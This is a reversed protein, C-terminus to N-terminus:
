HVGLAFRSRPTHPFDQMVVSELLMARMRLRASSYGPDAALPDGDSAGHVAHGGCWLFLISVFVAIVTRM